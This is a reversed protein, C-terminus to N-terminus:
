EDIDPFDGQIEIDVETPGIPVCHYGINEFIVDFDTM